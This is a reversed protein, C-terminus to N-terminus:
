LPSAGDHDACTTFRPATAQRCTLGSATVVAECEGDTWDAPDTLEAFTMPPGEPLQWEVVALAQAVTRLPGTTDDPVYIAHLVLGLGLDDGGNFTWGEEPLDRVKM